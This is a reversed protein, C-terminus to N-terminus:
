FSWAVSRDPDPQYSCFTGTRITAGLYRGLAANGFGARRVAIRVAKTVSTRARESASAAQRAGRMGLTSCLEGALFEMEERLEAARAADGCSMAMDVGDRLARLREQYEDRARGDIAPCGMEVPMRVDSSGDTRGMTVLDLALLERDPQRLLAELYEMGRCGKVRITKGAYVVTWYDGERRFVAIEQKPRLDVSHSAADHCEESGDLVCQARVVLGKM